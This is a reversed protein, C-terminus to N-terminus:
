GGPIIHRFQPTEGCEYPPGESRSSGDEDDGGPSGGWIESGPVAPSWDTLPLTDALAEVEACRGVRAKYKPLRRM